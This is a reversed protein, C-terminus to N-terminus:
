IIEGDDEPERPAARLREAMQAHTEPARAPPTPAIGRPPPLIARGNADLIGAAIMEAKSMRESRPPPLKEVHTIAKKARYLAARLELYTPQALEFLQVAKPYFAAQGKDKEAKFFEGRSWRTFAVAVAELPLVALAELYSAFFARWESPGSLPALGFSPTKFILLELLLDPPAPGAWAELAPYLEGVEARFKANLAILRSAGDSSDVSTTM